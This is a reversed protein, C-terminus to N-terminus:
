FRESSNSIYNQPLSDLMHVLGQNWNVAGYLFTFGSTGYEVCQQRSQCEAVCLSCLYGGGEGPWPVPRARRQLLSPTSAKLHLCGRRHPPLAGVFAPGLFSLPLASWISDQRGKGLALHIGARRVSVLSDIRGLVSWFVGKKPNCVHLHVQIYAGSKAM